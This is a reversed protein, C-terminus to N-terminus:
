GGFVAFAILHGGPEKVYIEDSGWPTRRRPIAIEADGLREVIADLDDVTVYVLSTSGSLMETADPINQEIQAVTQYHVDYGDKTFAVFNLRGDVYNHNNPVFDLAEWFPIVPEISAVALVPTLREVNAPPRTVEAAADGAGPAPRAEEGPGACAVTACTVLGVMAAKWASMVVEKPPAPRALRRV